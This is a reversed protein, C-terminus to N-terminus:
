PQKRLGRRYRQTVARTVAEEIMAKDIPRSLEASPLSRVYDLFRKPKRPAVIATGDAQLAVRLKDGAKMKWRRRLEAPLTLQGKSTLTVDVEYPM